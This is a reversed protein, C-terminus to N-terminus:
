NVGVALSGGSFFPGWGSAVAWIVAPQLAASTPELEGHGLSRVQVVM